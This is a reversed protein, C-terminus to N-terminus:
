LSRGLRKSRCQCWVGDGRAVAGAAAAAVDREGDVADEAVVASAGGLERTWTSQGPREVVVDRRDAPTAVLRGALSGPTIPASHSRRVRATADGAVVDVHLHRRQIIVYVIVDIIVRRWDSM